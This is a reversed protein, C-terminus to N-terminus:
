FQLGNFCYAEKASIPIVVQKFEFVPHRFVMHVKEGVIGTSIEITGVHLMVEHKM